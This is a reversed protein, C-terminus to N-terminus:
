ALIRALEAELPRLELDFARRMPAPDATSGLKLMRYQDLTLPSFPVRDLLPVVRDMLWLPIPLLPKRSGLADRVLLVLEKFTYVKPGVLDFAQGATGPDELAQAFCAAVDGVWVPRAPFAGDGVLPIVPLPAQVLRKLVGGFFGDGEGFVFSPRFITWALSSARVLAEAEAKTEFYRIGTGPRAGLASMHLYRAVGAKELAELTRRVGAVHVGHFTQGRAERLIGPLYIVADQDQVAAELGAGTVADGSLYQVGAVPGTGRRSLVRVAHGEVVLRAVLHRGVFGTGGIM